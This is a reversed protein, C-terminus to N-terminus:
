YRSAVFRRDKISTTDYYSYKNSRGPLKVEGQDGQAKDVAAGYLRV